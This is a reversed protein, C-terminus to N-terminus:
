SQTYNNPKKRPNKPVSIFQLKIDIRGKSNMPDVRVRFESFEYIIKYIKLKHNVNM